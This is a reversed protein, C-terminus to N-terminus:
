RATADSDACICAFTEPAITKADDILISFLDGDYGSPHKHLNTLSKM